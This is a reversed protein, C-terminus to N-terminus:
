KGIRIYDWMADLELRYGSSLIPFRCWTKPDLNEDDLHFSPAYRERKWQNRCWLVFFKEVWQGIREKSHELDSLSKVIELPSKKDRIALKEIRDLIPYPMLDKEDTQEQDKPKLEATPKQDLVYKLCKLGYEERAWKLWDILFAKDIGAIPSLGGSTDGDMTCYGVAAESRNSTSLLISNTINAIMWIGPSRVRAQINQLAIDDTKWSLKKDLAKSVKSKYKEVVDDVDLKLYKAGIFKAVERAAKETTSSSNKTAQYACVLHKSVEKRQWHAFANQWGKDRRVMLWVLCAVASSDAGGSLSLAYGKAKSKRMFDRLGLCVAQDFEEFKSYTNGDAPMTINEETDLKINIPLYFSKVKKDLTLDPTYSATRIRNTKNNDIDIVASIIEKNKYSFRPGESILKGESAIFTDGDFVVRGSENGLLNSYIYVCNFARSGELVFRRRVEHKGFAFHSASPNLIIDVGRAALSAGPRNSVWADECIEMGIKIGDVEFYIDGIPYKNDIKATLDEPWPHFWRPEYHIGDGALHKKCVFGEIAGNFLLCSANFLAGNYEIPLGVSVVVGQTEDKINHLADWSRKLLDKSHFTDECGYGTICLEPLCIIKAGNQSASYIATKINSINHVWDMPTQNLAVAAVKIKKM